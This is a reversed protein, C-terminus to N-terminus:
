VDSKLNQLESLGQLTSHRSLPQVALWSSDMSAPKIELTLVHSILLVSPSLEHRFSRVHKHFESVLLFMKPHILM